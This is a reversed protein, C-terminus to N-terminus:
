AVVSVVTLGIMGAGDEHSVAGLYSTGTTLGTWSLNITGTAGLVAAPPASDV